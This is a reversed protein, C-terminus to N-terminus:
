TVVEALSRGVSSCLTTQEDLVEFYCTLTFSPLFNVALCSTRDLGIIGGSETISVRSQIFQANQIQRPGHFHQRPSLSTM